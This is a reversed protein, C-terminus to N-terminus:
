LVVAGAAVAVRRARGLNICGVNYPAYGLVPPSQVQVGREGLIIHSLDHHYVADVVAGGHGLRHVHAGHDSQSPPVHANQARVRIFIIADRAQRRPLRAPAGAHAREVGFRRSARSTRSMGNYSSIPRLLQWPSMNRYFVARPEFLAALAEELADRLVHRRPVADGGDGAQDVGAFLLM